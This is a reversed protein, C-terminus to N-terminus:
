GQAKALGPRWSLRIWQQINYTLAAWLTEMGVKALGRLRFQRLGLKAKIWANPFEAVASRQRYIERAEPTQMKERFQRVEPVEALIRLTRQRSNPCCRAKLPCAECLARPARYEHIVTGARGESQAAATLRHGAPCEYTNQTADHKFAATCFEPDRNGNTAEKEILSGVLDVGMAQVALINARSTFGGDVVVQGPKAGLNQDVREIGPVLEPYDTGSQTTAAGVIIKHSAETSIQANYSPAYGGNAQKMIRATPDSTSVRVAEKEQADGKTQRLQELQELAQEVRQQRERAARARAAAQRPAEDGTDQSLAEVQQRAAQLHEALSPERRFSDASALAKIKTGDHMVRELSVLGQASLVGLVEAFLRNLAQPHACRFDSLTHHNIVASGCLWQFAPECVCRRAIERASTIGRSYAYIWLSALLRPDWPTRGATGEVAEIPAYFPQLDVQGTLEWIARAPHDQEILREVDVTGWVQQSRDVPKVRPRAAAPAGARPATGTQPDMGPLDPPRPTADNM